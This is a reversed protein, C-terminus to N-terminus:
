KALLGRLEANSWRRGQASYGAFEVEKYGIAAVKALTGEFDKGLDTRVTYLQLGVTKVSAAFVSRAAVAAAGLTGLFKRRDITTM